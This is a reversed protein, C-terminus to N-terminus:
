LKFVTSKSGCFTQCKSQVRQVTSTTPGELCPGGWGTANWYIVRWLYVAAQMCLSRACFAVLIDPIIFAKQASSYSYTTHEMCVRESYVPITGRCRDSVPTRVLSCMEECSHLFFILFCDVAVAAYRIYTSTSMTRTNEVSPRNSIISVHVRLSWRPVVIAEERGGNKHVPRSPVTEPGGFAQRAWATM